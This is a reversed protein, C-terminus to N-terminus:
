RYKWILDKWNGDERAAAEADEADIFAIRAEDRPEVVFERIMEGLNLEHVNQGGDEVDASIARENRVRQETVFM